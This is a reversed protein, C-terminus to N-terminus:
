TSTLNPDVLVNSALKAANQYVRTFFDNIKTQDAGMIMDNPVYNTNGRYYAFIGPVGNIQRKKKLFAYVDFSEDIDVMYFDLNQPLQPHNLWQHLLPEISKCPGCWEAGFKFIIVGQNNVILDQYEQLTISM